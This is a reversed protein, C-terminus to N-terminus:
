GEYFSSNALAKNERAIIIARTQTTVAILFKDLKNITYKCDNITPKSIKNFEEIIKLIEKTYEILIDNNFEEILKENNLFSIEINKILTLAKRMRFYNQIKKIM